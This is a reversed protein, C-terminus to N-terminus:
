NLFLKTMGREKDKRLDKRHGGMEFKHVKEKIIIIVYIICVYMCVFVCAYMSLCLHAFICICGVSDM